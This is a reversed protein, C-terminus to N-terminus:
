KMLYKLADVLRDLGTYMEKYHNKKMNAETTGKLYSMYGTFMIRFKIAYAELKVCLVAVKDKPVNGGEAIIKVVSDLTKSFDEDQMFDKALQDWTDHLDNTIVLPNDSIRDNKVTM